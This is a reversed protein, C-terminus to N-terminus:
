IQSCIKEWLACLVFYSCFNYVLVKVLYQGLGSILSSIDLFVLETNENFTKM